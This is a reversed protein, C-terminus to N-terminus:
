SVTCLICTTVAREFLVIIITIVSYLSCFITGQIMKKIDNARPSNYDQLFDMVTNGSSDKLDIDVGPPPLPHPWVTM